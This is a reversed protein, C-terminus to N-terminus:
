KVRGARWPPWYRLAVVGQVSEAPLFGWFHSDFSNNRNDGLVLLQGEPVTLPGLRYQPSQRVYPEDLREGNIYVGDFARVAVTDGPLGIVRKVYKEDKGSREPPVFMVIDGRKAECWKLVPGGGVEVKTRPRLPHQLGYGLKWVLFREGERITDLMSGTPVVVNAVVTAQLILYLVAVGAFFRVDKRLGGGHVYHALQEKCRQMSLKM